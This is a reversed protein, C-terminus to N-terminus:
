GLTAPRLSEFVRIVSDSACRTCLFLGIKHWFVDFVGSKLINGWRNGWLFDTM